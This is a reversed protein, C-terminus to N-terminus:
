YSLVQRPPNALQKNEPFRNFIKTVAKEILLEIHEPSSGINIVSVAWGRWILKKTQVDMLDLILTGEKYQPMSTQMCFWYPDNYFGAQERMVSAKEDVIIHYHVMLQPEIDTFIYGRNTLQQMVATKVRKDNLENYYIPDKGAEINTKQTWDFTSYNWLDYDPDYDTFVQIKSSCGTMLYLFVPILFILYKM